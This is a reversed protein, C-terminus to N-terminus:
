LDADFHPNLGIEAALNAQSVGAIQSKLFFGIRGKFSEAAHAVWQSNWESTPGRDQDRKRLGTPHRM